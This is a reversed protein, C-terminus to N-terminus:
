EGRWLEAMRDMSNLTNFIDKGRRILAQIMRNDMDTILFCEFQQVTEFESVAELFQKRYKAVSAYFEITKIGREFEGLSKCAQLVDYLNKIIMILFREKPPLKRFGKPRKGDGIYTDTYPFSDVKLNMEIDFIFQEHSNAWNEFRELDIMM